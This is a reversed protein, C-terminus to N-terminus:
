KLLLVVLATLASLTASWAMVSYMLHHRLHNDFNKMLIKQNTRVEILIDREEQNM